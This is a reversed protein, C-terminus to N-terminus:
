PREFKLRRNKSDITLIFARLVQYGINGPGPAPGPRLDSFTVRPLDLPYEGLSITGEVPATKLAFEGAVTRARGSDVPKETLKLEDLFRLPLMLGGPSGSDVHVKYLRGPLQLPVMPLPDRDDYEFVRRQDPAPLEGRRLTIKRAPYDLTLLYGPFAAASLVGRPPRDGGLGALGRFPYAPLNEIVADGMRVERLPTNLSLEAVLANDIVTASAGTDLIFPFPGKGNILLDVLPRGGVDQMPISIGGEPVHFRAQACASQAFIAAFLLARPM